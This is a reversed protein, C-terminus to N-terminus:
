HPPPPPRAPPPALPPLFPPSFGAMPARSRSLLREIYAQAHRFGRRVRGPVVTKAIRIPLPRPAPAVRAVQGEIAARARERWIAVYDSQQPMTEFIQKRAIRKALVLLFVPTANCLTVRGGVELPGRVAYWKPNRKQEYAVMNVVEFGNQESFINFHLEPSFQYFGHGFFNNAPTIGLYHGGLKVM